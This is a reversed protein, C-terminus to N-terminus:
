EFSVGNPSRPIVQMSGKYEDVSGTIKVAASKAINDPNIKTALDSFVTVRIDGTDDSVTMFIHGDRHYTHSVIKGSITVTTGVMDKTIEDISYVPAEFSSSVLYISFLGSVSFACCLVYIRDM